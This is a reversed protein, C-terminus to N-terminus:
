CMFNTVVCCFIGFKYKLPCLSYFLHWSYLCFYCSLNVVQKLVQPIPENSPPHTCPAFNCPALAKCIHLYVPSANAGSAYKFVIYIKDYNKKLKKDLMRAGLALKTIHPDTEQILPESVAM